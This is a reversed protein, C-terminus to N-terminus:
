NWHTNYDTFLIQSVLSTSGQVDISIYIYRNDVDNLVDVVEKGYGPASIGRDIIIYYTQSM